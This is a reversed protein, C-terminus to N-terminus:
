TPIGAKPLIYRSLVGLLVFLAVLLLLDWM